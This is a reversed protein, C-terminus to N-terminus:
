FGRQDVYRRPDRRPLGPRHHGVLRDSADRDVAAGTASMAEIVVPGDTAFAREVADALKTPIRSGSPPAAWPGPSSPSTPSTPTQRRAHDLRHHGQPRGSCISRCIRSRRGAATTSFSSSWRCAWCRQPPSSPAPRCSAATASWAGAGPHGARAIQAGIAAPLGFGIGSMGGAVINTKPGYIPFENFAQNAPNSSDTVLIGERPLAKRIEVMARSNTMPLYDTTRMPRLHEDWQAKLDQLEAFYDAARYDSADARRDASRRHAASCPPDQRRRRHRGRRPLQPRDRIRRHRDPRAQHGSHQLDRGPPLLVHHPRQVPLRRGPHRRRHPHRANGPISGMDGCPWAYLDHDAPFAGKGMFSHTVPAGLREAVALLEPPRPPSSAGAPWSSRGNPQPWCNLPRPSPSRTVPPRTPARRMEAPPPTYEGYEAQLDQPIDLSCRAAAVKTCPTSPRRSRPRSDAGARSPQWWRKVVPEAMRPFNNGHPRDIEQLVGHNEM